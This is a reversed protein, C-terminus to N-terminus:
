DVIEPGSRAILSTKEIGLLELLQSVQETLPVGEAEVGMLANAEDIAARLTQSSLDLTARIKAVQQM